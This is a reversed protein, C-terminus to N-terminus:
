AIMTLASVWRRASMSGCFSRAAEVSKAAAGSPGLYGAIIMTSLSVALVSLRAGTEALGESKFQEFDAAQRRVSTVVKRVLQAAWV